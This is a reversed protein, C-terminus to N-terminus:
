ANVPAPTEKGWQFARPADPNHKSWDVREEKNMWLWKRMQHYGLVFLAQEELPLFAPIGSGAPYGAQRMDVQFRDALEDVLRKLLFATGASKDNDRAKRAHHQANRLLRVFVSRPTASAAGFFRDIVSANVNELATEQLRELVAILCGLNYGDSTAKPNMDVGITRRTRRLLVAKILAARADRRELDSWESRGIEARTRELAKQLVAYPYPNGLLAARVIQAALADPIGKEDGLPALPRLLVGLPLVPPLARQKPSPTNRVIALDRFHRNLNDLVEAVTTEFWDRVVARGQAGTITVTYFASPDAIKPMKGTWLSRYLEAVKDPDSPNFIESMWDALDRGQEGAGWYCVVADDSLRIHRPRLTLHANNPDPYAPDLLRNLATACGEAAARSIPANANNDWGHSWFANKNFSVLGVGSTAGGPVRKILPFLGVDRIPQGTVLCQLDAAGSESDPQERQRKWYERVLPREHVLVDIDPAYVFAFLENSKCEAPLEIKQHGDAIRELLRLVARAGADHTEAACKRVLERFWSSKEAGEEASFNKDPTPLGFVYKANDVFFAAPAKTGSRGTPQRPIRFSKAVPKPKKKGQAPPVTHTSEIGLLKGGDAVRVLYAVPKPEYDPDALLGEEHAMRYLAQLM